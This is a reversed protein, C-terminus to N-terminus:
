FNLFEIGNFNLVIRLLSSYKETLDYKINIMWWDWWISILENWTLAHENYPFSTFKQNMYWGFIKMFKCSVNQVRTEVSNNLYPLSDYNECQHLCYIPISQQFVTLQNNNITIFKFNSLKFKM